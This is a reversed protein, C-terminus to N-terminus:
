LKRKVQGKPNIATLFHESLQEDNFIDVMQEQVSMDSTSDKPPGRLAYTYRVMISCVSFPHYYLIYSM